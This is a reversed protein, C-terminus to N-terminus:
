GCDDARDQQRELRDTGDDEGRQDDVFRRREQLQSASVEEPGGSGRLWRALGDQDGLLDATTGDRQLELTNALDIALEETYQDTTEM